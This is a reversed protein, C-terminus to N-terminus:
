RLGGLGRAGLPRGMVDVGSREKDAGDRRVIEVRPPMSVFGHLRKQARARRWGRSAGGSTPGDALGVIVIVTVIVTVIVVVIM